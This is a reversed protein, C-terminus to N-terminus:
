IYNSILANMKESWQMEDPIANCIDDLQRIQEPKLEEMHEVFSLLGARRALQFRKQELPSLQFYLDIKHLMEQRDLDLRGHIDQLLNIIHDSALIGTCNPTNEILEKIERVKDNESCLTYEGRQYKGWLGTGEKVAATRVRVFDPNIENVVRATGLANEESLAKGGVGPMFYVSLEIGGAKINKGATIQQEATTGKQILELVKDSGTEFGSHIRDLGAKKLAKFQEASVKSLTEARGYSTIREITPLKKKLYELVEILREAKLAITNGDQLFVSKGGNIVWNQMMYYCNQEDGSMNRPMEGSLIMDRYFAMVDIDEKISEVSYAKFQTHRYLQCFECKNWTCGATVQLLLSQAESPPRIPGIRFIKKEKDIMNIKEGKDM